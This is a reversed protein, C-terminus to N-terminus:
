TCKIDSAKRSETRTAKVKVLILKSCSIKVKLSYFFPLFTELLCFMESKTLVLLRFMCFADIYIHKYM